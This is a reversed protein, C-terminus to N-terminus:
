WVRVALRCATPCSGDTLTVLRTTTAIEQRTPSPGVSLDTGDASRVVRDSDMTRLTVNVAVTNPLQYRSRLSDQGLAVLTEVTSANLHNTKGAVSANTVLEAAVREAQARRDAGVSDTFPTLVTPLIAGLLVVVAILFVSIGLAYDQLTQGRDDGWLGTHGTGDRVSM